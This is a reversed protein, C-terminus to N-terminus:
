IKVISDTEPIFWHDKGDKRFFIGDYDIIKQEDPRKLFADIMDEGLLYVITKVFFAFRDDGNGNIEFYKGRGFLNLDKIRTGCHPPSVQTEDYYRLDSNDDFFSSVTESVPIGNVKKLFNLENIVSKLYNLNLTYEDDEIEFFAFLDKQYPIFGRYETNTPSSFMANQIATIKETDFGGYSDDSASVGMTEQEFTPFAAIENDVSVIYKVFKYTTDRKFFCLHVKIKTIDRSLEDIYTNIDVALDGPYNVEDDSNPKSEPNTNTESDSGFGAVSDTDSGADSEDNDSGENESGENESGENESGENESNDGIDSGDNDSENTTPQKPNM